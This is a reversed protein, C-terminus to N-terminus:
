AVSSNDQTIVSLAPTAPLVLEFRCGKDSSVLLLDGGMRRALDRAIALGLGTGSAGESVGRHVREFAEFVRESQDAPIGPGRDSVRLHLQEGLMSTEIGMWGGSSAYKEVNNILNGVIQSLADPDLRTRESAGRQWEVRVQRRDLSPQFQALIGEVVEDPTCAISRLELTRREGRSFTLVNSVLRGLRQVEEHVLSLRRRSEAPRDELARRALDLNLLINTLPTGLEHSVRNVFSVREEALRLARKQQAHLYIGALSLVFAICAASALVTPDHQSRIKLKDWALVEWEGLNTRHPLVLAAPGAQTEPPAELWPRGSPGQISVLEGAESLPSFPVKMWTSCHAELCRDLEEQDIVFAVLYLESSRFWYVRHSSDPGALWGKGPTNGELIEKPIVVARKPSVRGAESETLVQPIRSSEGIAPKKGDAEYRKGEPGFVLLKRIGVTNECHPSLQNASRRFAYAALEDLHQLYLADLRDLEERFSATFDFLRGRDAPVREETTRRAMREGGWLMLVAVALMPVLTFWVAKM